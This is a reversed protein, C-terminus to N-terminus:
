RGRTRELSTNSPLGGSEGWPALILARLLFSIATFSLFMSAVSHYAPQELRRALFIGIAVLCAIAVLDKARTWASHQYAVVAAGFTEAKRLHLLNKRRGLLELMGELAGICAGAFFPEPSLAGLKWLLISVVTGCAGLALIPLARVSWHVQPV